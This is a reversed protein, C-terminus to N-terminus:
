DIDTLNFAGDSLQDESYPLWVLETKLVLEGNPRREHRMVFHCNDPIEISINNFKFQGGSRIKESLRALLSGADKTPMMRESNALWGHHNGKHSHKM